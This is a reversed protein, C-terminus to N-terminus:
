WGRLWLLGGPDPDPAVRHSGVSRDLDLLREQADEFAAPDLNDHVISCFAALSSSLGAAPRFCFQLNKGSRMRSARRGALELSPFPKVEVFSGHMEMWREVADCDLDRVVFGQSFRLLKRTKHVGVCALFSLEQDQGDLQVVGGLLDVVLLNTSSRWNM